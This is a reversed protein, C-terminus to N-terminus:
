SIDISYKTNDNSFVKQNEMKSNSLNGSNQRNFMEVSDQKFSSSNRLLKPNNMSQTVPAMDKKSNSRMLNREQKSQNSNKLFCSQLTSNNLTKNKIDSKPINPNPQLNLNNNMIIESEEIDENSGINVGDDNNSEVSNGCQYDTGWSTSAGVGNNSYNQRIQMQIQQTLREM